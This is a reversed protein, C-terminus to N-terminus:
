QSGTDIREGLNNTYVSTYFKEEGLVHDYHKAESEELGIHGIVAEDFLNNGVLVPDVIIDYNKDIIFLFEEDENEINAHEAVLDELAFSVMVTGGFDDEIFYPNSLLVKVKSDEFVHDITTKMTESSEIISPFKEISSNLPFPDMGRSYFIKYNKDSISVTFPAIENLEEFLVNLRHNEEESVIGDVKATATIFDIKSDVLEYTSEINSSIERVKFENEHIAFETSLDIFNQEETEHIIITTAIIPIIILAPVILWFNTRISEMM